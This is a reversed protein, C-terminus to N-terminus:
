YTRTGYSLFLDRLASELESRNTLARGVGDDVWQARGLITRLDTLFREGRSGRTPVIGAEDILRAYNRSWQWPESINPFFGLAEADSLSLRDIIAERDPNRGRSPDLRTSRGRISLPDSYISTVEHSTRGPPAHEGILSVTRAHPDVRGSLFNRAEDYGGM